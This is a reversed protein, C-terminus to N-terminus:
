YEKMKEGKIRVKRPAAKQMEKIIEENPEFIVKVLGSDKREFAIYRDAEKQLSSFNKMHYNQKEYQELEKSGEPAIVEIKSMELKGLGKRRSKGCIKDFQCEGNLYQYEFEVDTQQFVFRTLYGFAVALMLFMPQVFMIGLCVLSFCVSVFFVRVALGVATMKRKLLFEHYVDGM